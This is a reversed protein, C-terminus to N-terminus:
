ESLILGVIAGQGCPLVDYSQSYTTRITRGLSGLSNRCLRPLGVAESCRPVPAKTRYLRAIAFWQQRRRALDCAAVLNDINVFTPM